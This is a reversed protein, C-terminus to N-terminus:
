RHYPNTHHNFIDFLQSMSTSSGDCKDTGRWEEFPGVSQTYGFDYAALSGHRYEYDFAMVGNNDSGHELAENTVTPSLKGRFEAVFM